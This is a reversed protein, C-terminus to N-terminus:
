ERMLNEPVKSNKDASLWCKREIDKILQLLSRRIMSIFTWYRGKKVNIAGKANRVDPVL